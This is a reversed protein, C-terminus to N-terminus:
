EQQCHIAGADSHWHCELELRQELLEVNFNEM